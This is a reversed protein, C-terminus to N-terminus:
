YQSFKALPSRSSGWCNKLYSSNSWKYEQVYEKPTSAQVPYHIHAHFIHGVYVGEQPSKILSVVTGIAGDYLVFQHNEEYGEYPHEADIEFFWFKATKYLVKHGNLPPKYYNYNM